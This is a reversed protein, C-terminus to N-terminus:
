RSGAWAAPMAATCRSGPARPRCRPAPDAHGSLLGLHPLGGEGGLLVNGLLPMRCRAPAAGLTHGAVRGREWADSWGNAAPPMRACCAACWATPWCRRWSGAANGRRRGATWASCSRTAATSAPETLRALRVVQQMREALRADDPVSCKVDARGARPRRTATVTLVTGDALPCRCQAGDQGYRAGNM